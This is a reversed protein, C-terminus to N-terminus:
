VQTAEQNQRDLEELESMLTDREEEVNRLVKQRQELDRKLDDTAELQDQVAEQNSAVREQAVKLEQQLNRQLLVVIRSSGDLFSASQRASSRM